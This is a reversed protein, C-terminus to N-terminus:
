NPPAIFNTEIEDIKKGNSFIDIEIESKYKKIDKQPIIV